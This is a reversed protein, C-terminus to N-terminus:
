KSQHKLQAAESALQQSLMPPLYGLKKLINRAAYYGAVVQKSHDPKKFRADYIDMWYDVEEDITTVQKIGIQQGHKLLWQHRLQQLLEKEERSCFIPEVNFPSIGAMMAVTFSHISDQM